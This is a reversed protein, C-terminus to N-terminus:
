HYRIISSLARCCESTLFIAKFTNCRIPSVHNEM